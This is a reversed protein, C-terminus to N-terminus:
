SNTEAQPVVGAHRKLKKLHREFFKLTADHLTKCIRFNREGLSRMGDQGEWVPRNRLLPSRPANVLPIDCFNLFTLLAADDGARLLDNLVAFFQGASQTAERIHREKRISSHTKIDLLNTVFVLGSLQRRGDITEISVLTSSEQLQPLLREPVAASFRDDSIRIMSLSRGRSGQFHVRAAVAEIHFESPLIAHIMLIEDALVADILRVPMAPLHEDEERPASKLDEPSRLHYASNTPDCFKRANLAKPPLGSLAIVTEINGTRGHSLLAPTTFNASGYVVTTTQSAEFIIAKAHLPQSHGDDEYTCLLIEAQGSRVLPHALWEATMTTLGNQTYFFLHKPNFDRMLPDILRPSDDFFRSVVHIRNVSQPAVSAIQQWLPKELNHLLRTSNDKLSSEKALWPTTRQFEGVNSVLSEVQWQESLASVFGFADQFLQLFEESEDVEFDFVDTLEANSTLGARTFNASGIILRGSTTTSFLFLKPHFRGNTDIPSLLYRLNLHKPRRSEAALAIKNYTGRDTCVSINNNNSLASFRDLCYDEFFFPEFTYTCLFANHYVYRSLADHLDLKSGKNARAM